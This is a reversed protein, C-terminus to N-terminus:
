LLNKVRNLQREFGGLNGFRFKEQTRKNGIFGGGYNIIWDGAYWKGSDTGTGQTAQPIIEQILENPTKM